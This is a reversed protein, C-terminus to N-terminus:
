PTFTVEPYFIGKYKENYIYNLLTYLGYDSEQLVPTPIICAWATTVGYKEKPVTARIDKETLKVYAESYWICLSRSFKLVFSIYHELIEMKDVIRTQKLEMSDLPIPKRM